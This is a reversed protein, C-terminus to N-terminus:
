RTGRPRLALRRCFTTIFNSTRQPSRKVLLWSRVLAGHQAGKADKGGKTHMQGKGRRRVLGKMHTGRALAVVPWRCLGAQSGHAQRERALAARMLHM